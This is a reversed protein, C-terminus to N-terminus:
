DSKSSKKKDSSKKSSDKPPSATKVVEKFPGFPLEVGIFTGGAYVVYLFSALLAALSPAIWYIFYHDMSLNCSTKKLFVLWASGLMPNMAPGTTPFVIILYRIFIAQLSQKIWYHYKGFDLEFNLVFISVILFFSSLFECLFAGSADDNEDKLDYAPGGLEHWGMSLSFKLFLPFAVLGGAMSAMIRVYCETFSCKGLCFMTLSVAPNVHPGGALYDAAVVGVAHSFWEIPTSDIGIWKGPSFTLFVMLLTGYFEVWWADRFAGGGLFICAICHALGSPLSTYIYSTLSSLSSVVIM